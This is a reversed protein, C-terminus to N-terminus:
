LPLGAVKKVNDSLCCGARVVTITPKSCDLITSPMIPFATQGEEYCQAGVQSILREDIDNITQPIPYTHINASTSFLGDNEQLLLELGPHRPVRLAITGDSSKMFSPLDKKAKFILTVPGPWVLTMLQELQLTIEQSIFMSLMDASRILILYPQDSRQKISNIQKYSKQTLRGLLGLVTDGSVIAIRDQNLVDQLKQIDYSNNWYLTM